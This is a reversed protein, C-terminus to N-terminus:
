EYEKEMKERYNEWIKKKSYKKLSGDFDELSKMTKLVYVGNEEVIEVKGPIKLKLKKQLKDPFYVLGRSSISLIINMIKNNYM